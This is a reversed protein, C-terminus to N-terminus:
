RAESVVKRTEVPYEELLKRIIHEALYQKFESYKQYYVGYYGGKGTRRRARITSSPTIRWM